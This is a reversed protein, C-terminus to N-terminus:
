TEELVRRQPHNVYCTRSLKIYTLLAAIAGTTLLAANPRGRSDVKAFFEPILAQHSMTRLMRSATYLSEAGNGMIGVLIGANMIHPVVPIGAENQAIVFPSATVSSGGLLRQDTSPVLLSVLVISSIFMFSARYPVLKAAHGLSFRPNQAEGAM